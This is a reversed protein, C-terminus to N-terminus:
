KTKVLLWGIGFIVLLAVIQDVTQWHIFKGSILAVGVITIAFWGITQIEPTVIGVDQLFKIAIWYATLGLIVGLASKTIEAWVIKGNHWVNAAHVFGQADGFGSLLTFIVIFFISKTLEFNM